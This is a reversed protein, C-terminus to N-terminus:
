IAVEKYVFTVWVNGAATITAAIDTTFVASVAEEISPDYVDSDNDAPVILKIKGTAGDLINVDDGATDGSIKAYLLVGAKNDTTVAGTSTLQKIQVEGIKAM